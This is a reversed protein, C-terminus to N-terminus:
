RSEMALRAAGYIGADNGLVALRIQTDQSAHFVYKQFSREVSVRLFEGALSIGGGLVVVDPDLLSCLAAIGRGLIDCARDTVTRATQNGAQALLFLEKPSIDGLGAQQAQRVLGPASCYQELCGYNGCSCPITEQPEVCIHGIEGASGHAGALLQGHTVIGAGVGTGLTVLAVTDFGAGGGQWQEGM